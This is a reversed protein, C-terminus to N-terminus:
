KEGVMTTGSGESMEDGYKIKSDRNVRPSAEFRGAEEVATTQRSLGMNDVDIDRGSLEKYHDTIAYELTNADRSSGIKVYKKGNEVIGRETKKLLHITYNMDGRINTRLYPLAKVLKVHNITPNTRTNIKILAIAEDVTIFDSPKM